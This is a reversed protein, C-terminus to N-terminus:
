WIMDPIKLVLSGKLVLNSYIWLLLTNNVYIHM